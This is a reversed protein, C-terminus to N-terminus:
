GLTKTIGFMHYRNITKFAEELEEKSENLELTIEVLGIYQWYISRITKYCAENLEYTSNIIGMMKDTLMEKFSSPETKSDKRFYILLYVRNDILFNIFSKSNFLNLEKSSGIKWDMVKKEVISFLTEILNPPLLGDLISQKNKYYRYINGIPVEAEKSINSMTTAEFGSKSFLKM